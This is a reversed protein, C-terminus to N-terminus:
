RQLSWEHVPRGAHSHEVYRALMLALAEQRDATREYQALMARQWGAGTTGARLREAIIGLWRDAEDADVGVRALGEAAIEILRPALEPLTWERPSPPRSSPWLIKAGPGKRAARRFNAMAYRFPFRPLLHPVQPRLGAVLGVAFAANAAMDAATPGSPLLRMEIRLHGGEAPDYVPRNWGWVTGQHLRLEQLTPLGGSRLIEMPDEPSCRPILPPFLAASEEFLELVGERVWGQGFSVRPLRFGREAGPDRADVAQQFLAIRTEDWLLHQLFIPSNTALALVVPTALQVANFTDAFESPDVRLHLQFSTTAGEFTVDDCNVSLPEAGDIRVDFPEMRMRRLGASLARYRPMDTMASSQLDEATLTPLIGTAAIRGGYHAAARDLHALAYASRDHLAQFPAGALPTHPVNYELNFVNLEVTLNPDGSQDVLTTNLALPRGNADAISMELEAGFTAPGVGFGPRRLLEELVELSASVKSAFRRYDDEGFEASDISLGM